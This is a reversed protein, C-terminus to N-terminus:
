EKDKTHTGSAADDHGSASSVFMLAMLASGLLVTLGIGFATTLLLGIHVEASSRAVLIVAIAAIVVSLLALLRFVKWFRQVTSLRPSPVPDPRPPKGKPM